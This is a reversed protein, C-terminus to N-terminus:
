GTVVKCSGSAADYESGDACTMVQKEHGSCAAFALAPMTALLASTVLVKVKM